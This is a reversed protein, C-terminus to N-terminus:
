RFTIIYLKRSILVFFVLFGMLFAGIMMAKKSALGEKPLPLVPDDVVQILPTEKRITLKALELNQVLQTLIAKNAEANFQSRQAPARLILRSPNLNPTADMVSVSTNVAMNLARKVSDTQKQLLALNQVSKKTKTQIYFDNVTNVIANNFNKSFFEDKSKVKVSIISLKKDPKGVTLYDKNITSVISTIISDKIRSHAPNIVNFDITRLVENKDWDERYKNYDLYHDILLKEVGKYPVKTLLAKQIMNRSKYLEQINEGQFLGGGGGGIDIGAMGALGGLQGFMGGGGSEDELVFTTEAIYFPKKLGAYFYGGLGGILVALIIIKWYTLLYKAWESLLIIFEKFSMDDYNMDREHTSSNNNKM